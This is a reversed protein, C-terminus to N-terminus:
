RVEQGTITYTKDGRLILIQGDRLIKHYGDINDSPNILDTAVEPAGTTEFEGSYSELVTEGNKAEVSFAYNTGSNLGTVTFQMGNATMTAAPAHPQRDRSPAFAIGTLQGNANFVLTCFVVGDKTIEISYSDANDNTPWTLTATNDDAVVKVDNNTVT